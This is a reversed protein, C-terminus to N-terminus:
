ADETDLEFQRQKQKRAKQIQRDQDVKSSDSRRDTRKNKFNKLKKHTRLEEIYKPM